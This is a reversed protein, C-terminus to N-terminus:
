VWIGERKLIEAAAVQEAARKSFDVGKAPSIGSVEVMVTFCPHHDPGSRFTVTYIPTVGFKAHAWEQLETKADRRIKGEKLARHKWYKEVFDNTVEMGGDLYLAAILSEVVDAQISTIFNCVDRRLDSSVLIFSSISLEKAVQSCTEASVLANFRVSLEGEKASDFHNFLLRSILLGLVRDGLFELREYSEQPSRSISSHTFAKELLSKDSFTYGIKEEIASYQLASM